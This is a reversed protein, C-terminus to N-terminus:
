QVLVHREIRGLQYAGLSKEVGDAREFLVSRRGIRLIEIDVLPQDVFQQRQVSGINGVGIRGPGDM